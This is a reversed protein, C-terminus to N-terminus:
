EPEKEDGDDGTEGTEGSTQPRDGGDPEAETDGSHPQVPM